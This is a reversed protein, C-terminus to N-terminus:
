FPRTKARRIKYSAVAALFEDADQWFRVSRSCAHNRFFYSLPDNVEGNRVAGRAGCVHDCDAKPYDCGATGRVSRCNVQDGHCIFLKVRCFRASAISNFRRYFEVQFAFYNRFVLFFQKVYGDLVSCFINSIEGFTEGRFSSPNPIIMETRNRDLRPSQGRPSTPYISSFNTM